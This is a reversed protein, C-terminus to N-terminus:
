HFLKWCHNMGAEEATQNTVPAHPLVAQQHPEKQCHQPLHEEPSPAMTLRQHMSRSKLHRRTARHPTGTPFQLRPSWTTILHSFPFYQTLARHPYMRICPLISKLSCIYKHNLIAQQPLGLKRRTNPWTAPLIYHWLFSFFFSSFKM